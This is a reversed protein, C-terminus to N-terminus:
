GCRIPDSEPCTPDSPFFCSVTREPNRWYLGFCVPISLDAKCYSGQSTPSFACGPTRLCNIQCTDLPVPESHPCAVPFAQPCTPDNPAYCLATMAPNRWYFGFCVPPFSDAKCYSGHPDVSCTESAECYLECSHSSVASIGILVLAFQIMM